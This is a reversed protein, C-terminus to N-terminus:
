YFGTGTPMLVLADGGSIIHNVIAEQEGRFSTYGFIEQLCQQPSSYSM